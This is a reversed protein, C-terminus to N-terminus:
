FKGDIAKASIRVSGSLDDGNKSSFKDMEVTYSQEYLIGEMDDNAFSGLKSTTNGRKRNETNNAYGSAYNKNSTGTSSGFAKPFSRVLLVRISPM